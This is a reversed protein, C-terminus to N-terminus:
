PIPEWTRRVFRWTEETRPGSRPLRAYADFVILAALTAGAVTAVPRWGGGERLLVWCLAAVAVYLPALSLPGQLGILTGLSHPALGERLARLSVEYLPNAFGDPWHPYTSAALVHVLVGVLVSAQVLMRGAPHDDVAAFGAAALWGCFPLAVALYRPGVSWGGGAIESVLSGVLLLYAAVVGAAAAAEAGIRARAAPDRAIVIAGVAAWVAWPSLVLLGKDPSLLIYGFAARNPGIMGLWGVSHAADGSFSYGTRWPAGFCLVHVLLLLALFPAAGAALLAASRLPRALRVLAFLAVAAAGLAAQYDCLVAAGCLAGVALLGLTPRCAEGRALAISVAFAAGVAAAAPAHSMFLLAYPFMLSGLGFACLAENPALHNGPPVFRRAVALFVPLFLLAPLTVALTRFLWTSVALDASRSPAVARALVYAPLVLLSLGPAKNSYHRGDPTTAVDFMSGMEALRADIALTGREALEQTALVRPLENANKLQGFYPFVYLYVFAFAAWVALSRRRRARRDPGEANMRAGDDDAAAADKL